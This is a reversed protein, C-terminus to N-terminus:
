AIRPANSRAKHFREAHDKDAVLAAACAIERRMQELILVLMNM